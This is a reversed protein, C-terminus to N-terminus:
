CPAQSWQEICAALASKVDMMQEGTWSEYRQCDLVSWAPRRAQQPWQDSGIPEVPVAAAILKREAAMKVAFDALEHWSAAARGAVHVLEPGDLHGLRQELLVWTARALDGAWTPSGVQDAVVKLPAGTAAKRVIASVFNGACASYVWATRVIMARASGAQIAQEGALKTRGYVSEPAVPDTERWARGPMGGFVYDTSYSILAADHRGCWRALESPVEGNLRMAAQPHDEAADVATWAAANIIVDPQVDDLLGALEAPDALNCPADGGTRASTVLEINDPVCARLHRGLQGEAGTLLVKM